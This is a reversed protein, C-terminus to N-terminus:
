LRTAESVYLEEEHTLNQLQCTDQNFTVEISSTGLHVRPIQVVKWATKMTVRIKWAIEAYSRKM